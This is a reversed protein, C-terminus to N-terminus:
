NETMKRAATNIEEKKSNLLSFLEKVRRSSFNEYVLLEHNEISHAVVVIILKANQACKRLNEAM